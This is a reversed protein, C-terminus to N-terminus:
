DIAYFDDLSKILANEIEELCHEFEDYVSIGDRKIDIIDFYAPCGQTGTGNSDYRVEKEEPFYIYDVDLYEGAFKVPFQKNM